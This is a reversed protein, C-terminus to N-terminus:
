SLSPNSARLSADDVSSATLAPAQLRPSAVALGLAYPSDLGRLLYSLQANKPTKAIIALSTLDVVIVTNFLLSM